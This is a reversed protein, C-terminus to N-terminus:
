WGIVTSDKQIVKRAHTRCALVPLPVAAMMSRMRIPLSLKRTKRRRLWRARGKESPTLAAISKIDLEVALFICGNSAKM